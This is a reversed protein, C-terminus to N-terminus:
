TSRRRGAGPSAPTICPPNTARKSAEARLRPPDTPGARTTSCNFETVTTAHAGPLAKSVGPLRTSPACECTPPITRRARWNVRMTMLHSTDYGLEVGRLGAYTRVFLSAGALLVLALAIQVVILAGHARRQVRSIATGSGERLPNMLRKGTAELAPAIGFALGTVLAMAIAYTFTRLDLTWDVDDPGASPRRCRTM